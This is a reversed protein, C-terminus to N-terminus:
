IENIKKTRDLNKYRNMSKEMKGAETYIQPRGEELGRVASISLQLGRLAEIHESVSAPNIYCKLNSVQELKDIQGQENEVTRLIHEKNEAFYDIVSVTDAEELVEKVSSSMKRLISNRSSIMRTYSDLEKLSDEMLRDANNLLEREKKELRQRIDEFAHAMQQKASNTQEIIEKKRAEIRQEHIELDDMKSTLLILLDEVKGRVLQGAKKINMVEHNKHVGHVVCESCICESECELCYYSVEEDPHERCVERRYAYDKMPSMQQSVQYDDTWYDRTPYDDETYFRSLESASTSDLM